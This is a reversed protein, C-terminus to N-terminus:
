EDEDLGFEKRKLEIEDDIASIYNRLTDRADSGKSYVAKLAFTVNRESMYGGPVEPIGVANELAELIVSRERANWPLMSIAEINATNYRAGKGLSSELERGFRYQIDASTWWKLFDWCAEPDKASSMIVCGACTMPTAANLKGDTGVTGPAVAISWLGDIEPASIKLVNYVSYNAIAIPMEGNRMRTELSYVYPVGYSDYFKMYNHFSDLANKEGLMSRTRSDNYLRGGNQFLFLYYSTYLAPIAFNMNNSQITPLVKIIDEWSKLTEIDIGLSDMIDKRYFIVPFDMTEPIAYVKDLYTFGVTSQAPFRKAIEYFDEFDSLPIVANRMAYNVPDSGTIQLAVDPGKGALTATLVTGAPVLQLNVATKHTSSYDQAILRNLVLAQDRGGSLGNGIWVKIQKESPSGVSLANYDNIFSSFFRMFGCKAKIFINADAAPLEAGQEAIFVYDLTMPQLKASEILTAFSSISDRFFSYQNPIKSPKKVLGRLLEELQELEALSSDKEDTLAEWEKIMGAIEDACEGISAITDPMYTDLQYDRNTDPETGIVTMLEWNVANLKDLTEEAKILSGSIEGLVAELSIERIGEELWFLYPEKGGILEVRWDSSKDFVLAEAEKFPPEGDIKVSRVAQRANQQRFRLGINYYGSQKVEVKYSVWQGVSQFRSGEIVNLKQWAWDYPSNEPSTIDTAGYIASDSKEDMEEAEYIAIGNKIVGKVAKDNHASVYEEYSPRNQTESVASVSIVAMPEQVAKMAFTHKGASLMFRLSDGYYGDADTIRATLVRRVEEQESRIDNGNEVRKIKESDRFVRGFVVNQLEETVEKGDICVTRVIDSGNGGMPYYEIEFAYMGSEPIELSWEVFSTDDTLLAEKESDPIKVQTAGSKSQADIAAVTVRKGTINQESIGSIYNKYTQASNDSSSLAVEAEAATKGNPIVCINFALLVCIASVFLRKIKM